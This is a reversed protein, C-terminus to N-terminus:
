IRARVTLILNRGPAVVGSSYPRYRVNFLNEIGANIQIVSNIQFSTKINLTVWAPSMPNGNSDTAYIHPKERESTSLQSYSLEGNYISYLDAKFNEFTFILHTGGFTPTVHRLPNNDQDFGKIYNLHSKLSFNNFIDAYVSFQIGYLVGYDSNVLAEVKSLTGDYVISDLGNFNFNDRVMVNNIYSGFGTLEVQLKEYFSSSFGLDVNYVYEPTLNKNPVIVNGPESDFVKGIDDINPSRFGTSFNLKIQTNTVPQFVAGFSGTIANNSLDIEKFPFPYFTTDFPAFLEIHNVRLGFVLNTKEKIKRKQNIYFSFFSYTSNNPYRSPYEITEGNTINKESGVSNVLNDALEIGYYLSSNESLEKDFNVNITIMKVNEQRERLLLKNLKRDHRSEEYNQLAIIFKSNDFFLNSKRETIKVSNMMWKQPGYYWEAYKLKNDKKQILRDYRPVDSLKSYHFAYEVDITNTPKYRIKQLINFQSYATFKQVNVNKNNVISDVGNITEVYEPRTYDTHKLNGMKLDDYDSYTFSSVYAFKNFGLNFDLHGTKEFNASSYRLMANTSIFPKEQTSLFPKKTHIDIVGGIADSGYIVSGPGLIIESSEVANADLSIINQLNGSRYIANNMRVGDVVLLIRNAAFGRIMPSGGGMQSKQIFIEDSEGILDATTQPNNFQIERKSITQIKNPVESKNQEWQNASVIIESLNLVSEEMKVIFNLKKLENYSINLNKFAPHQFNIKETKNFSSIDAQGKENTLTTSEHNYIFVNIVPQKNTINLVTITQSKGVFVSITLIIFIFVLKIREKTKLLLKSM